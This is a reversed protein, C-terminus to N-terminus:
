VPISAEMTWIFQTGYSLWYIVNFVLFLFPMAILFFRDANIFNEGCREKRPAELQLLDRTNVGNDPTVEYKFNDKCIIQFLIIFQLQFGSVLM